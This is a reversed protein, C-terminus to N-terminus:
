NSFEIFDTKFAFPINISSPPARDILSVHRCRMLTISGCYEAMLACRAPQAATCTPHYSWVLGAVGTVHPTAMSTGNYYEYDEGSTTSVTIEQGVYGLLEQGFARDVTVSVMRYAILVIIGMLVKYGLSGATFYQSVQDLHIWDNM